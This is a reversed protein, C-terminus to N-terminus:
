IALVYFLLVTICYMFDYYLELDILWDYTLYGVFSGFFSLIM